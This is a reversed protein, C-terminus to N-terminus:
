NLDDDVQRTLQHLRSLIWKDMLTLEVTEIPHDKPDLATSIPM